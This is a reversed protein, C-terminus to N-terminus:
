QCAKLATRARTHTRRAQARAGDAGFFAFTQAPQAACLLHQQADFVFVQAADWKSVRLALRSGTHAILAEHYYTTCNWSVYGGAQVQRTEEHAFAVQLVQPAVQPAGAWGNAIATSLTQTPSHGRLHRSRPQARAHYYDLSQDFAHHFAAWDGPFARPAQGINHTKQRMRDGGIWGPLMALVQQELVAFIGEIPKAQANYPRARVVPKLRTDLGAGTLRNLHAFGDLMDQWGYEAGNDLYLQRPLGWASCMAAFAQAVHVQKVGEGKELQILTVHLRQTAVDLWAIARPMVPTGDARTLRIDIPHVDGVIIDMPKLGERHRRIRPVRTDFFLRADQDHMALLAYRRFVEVYSRTLQCEALTVTSWGAALSLDFLVASGLEAVTRFGPAGAAWLSRVQEALQEAIRVQVVAPLPCAADWQRTIGVRKRGFDRRPRRMLATLGQQEYRAVWAYLSDLSVRRRRGDPALHACGALQRLQEGRASSHKPYALAPQLLRWKWLALERHKTAQRDLPQPGHHLSRQLSFSTSPLSASAGSMLLRQYLEAPLSDLKVEYSPTTGAIPDQVERVQLFSGRWPHGLASQALIHQAQFDSLTALNTFTAVDFWLPSSFTNASSFPLCSPDLSAAASLYAL